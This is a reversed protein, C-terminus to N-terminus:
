IGFQLSTVFKRKYSTLQSIKTISKSVRGTKTDNVYKTKSSILRGEMTTQSKIQKRFRLM